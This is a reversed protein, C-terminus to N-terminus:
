AWEENITILMRQQNVISKTAIIQKEEMKKLVNRIGKSSRRLKAAIEVQTHYPNQCGRLYQLVVYEIPELEMEKEEMVMNELSANTELTGDKRMLVANRASTNEDLIKPLEIEFTHVIREEDIYLHRRNEPGVIDDIEVESTPNFKNVNLISEPFVENFKQVTQEPLSEFLKIKEGIGM